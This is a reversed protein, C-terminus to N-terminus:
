REGPTGTPALASALIHILKAYEASDTRLRERYDRESLDQARWDGNYITKVTGDRWTLDTPKSPTGDRLGDAGFDQVFFRGELDARSHLEAYVERDRGNLIHEKLLVPVSYKASIVLLQSGPLHLAAVFRGPDAPHQAAVSERQHQTLLGVLQEVTAAPPAQARGVASYLLVGLAISTTLARMM